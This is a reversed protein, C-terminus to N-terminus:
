PQMGPGLDEGMRHFMLQVWQVLMDIHPMLQSQELWLLNQPPALQRLLYVAVVILIVGRAFGFVTGLLRDLLSLGTVRVMQTALKSLVGALLLSGVFLLAYAAVYRGTVNSIWDSLLGALAVAYLNAIIFAAIWGALSIAERTFGRWLSLVISAGIVAAIVWDAATLLTWDIV